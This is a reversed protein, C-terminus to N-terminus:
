MLTTLCQFFPTTFSLIKWLEDVIKTLVSPVVLHHSKKKHRNKSGPQGILPNAQQLWGLSHFYHPTKLSLVDHVTPPVCEFWKQSARTRSISCIDLFLGGERKWFFFFFVLGFILGRLKKSFIGESLLQGVGLNLPTYKLNM